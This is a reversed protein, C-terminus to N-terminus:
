WIPMSSFRRYPWSRGRYRRSIPPWPWSWPRADALARRVLPSPDDLVMLMAHEAAAADDKSLDSHLYASALASTAEVRQAASAARIGELFHRVIM